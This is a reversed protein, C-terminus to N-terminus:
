PHAYWLSHQNGSFVTKHFWDLFKEVTGKSCVGQFGLSEVPVARARGRLKLNSPDPPARARPVWTVNVAPAPDTWFTRNSIEQFWSEVIPFLLLLLSWTSFGKLLDLSDSKPKRFLLNMCSWSGIESANDNRMHLQTVHPVSPAEFTLHEFRNELHHLCWGWEM